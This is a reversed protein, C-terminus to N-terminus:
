IILSPKNLMLKFFLGLSPEQKMPLPLKNWLKPARVLFEKVELNPAKPCDFSPPRCVQTGCLAPVSLNARVFLFPRSWEFVFFFFFLLLISCCKGM